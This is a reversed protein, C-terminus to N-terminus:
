SQQVMCYTVGDPGHVFEVPFFGQPHPCGGDTNPIISKIVYTRENEDFTGVADECSAPVLDADIARKEIKVCDGEAFSASAPARRSRAAVTTTVTTPATTTTPTSTTTSNPTDEVLDTASPQSVDAGETASSPGFALLAGIAGAVVLAAAAVAVVAWPGGRRGPRRGHSSPAPTAPPSLTPPSSTSGAAQSSELWRGPEGPEDVWWQEGM